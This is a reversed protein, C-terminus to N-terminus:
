YIEGTEADIISASHEYNLKWGLVLEQNKNSFYIVETNLLNENFDNSTNIRNTNAIKIATDKDSIKVSIKRKLTNQKIKLWNKDIMIIKGNEIYVHIYSGSYLNSVPLKNYNQKYKIVYNNAKSKNMDKLTVIDRIDICDFEADDPLINNRTLYLSLENISENINTQDFDFGTFKNKDLLCSSDISDIKYADKIELKTFVDNANESINFYTNSQTVGNKDLKITPYGDNNITNTTMQTITDNSSNDNFLVSSYNISYTTNASYWANRMTMGNKMNAVFKKAILDDQYDNYASLWQGPATGAYGFIMNVRNTAGYMTNSWSNTLSDYSGIQNCAALVVYKTNYNWCSNSKIYSYSAGYTPEDSGIYSHMVPASPSSYSIYGTQSNIGYCSMRGDSLGHGSWYVFTSNNDADQLQKVIGTTDVTGISWNSITDMTNAFEIADDGNIDGGYFASVYYEALVIQNLCLISILIFVIIKKLM